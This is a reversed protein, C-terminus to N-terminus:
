SADFTYSVKFTEKAYTMDIFDQPAHLDMQCVIGGNELVDLNM